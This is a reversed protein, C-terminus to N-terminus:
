NAAAGRFSELVRLTNFFFRPLETAATKPSQCDSTEGFGVCLQYRTPSPSKPHVRGRPAMELFPGPFARRFHGQSPGSPPAPGNRSIDRPLGQLRCPANGYIAGPLRSSRSSIKPFPMRLTRLPETNKMLCGFMAGALFWCPFCLCPVFKLEMSM